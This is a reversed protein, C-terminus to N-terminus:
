IEKTDGLSKIRKDAKVAKERKPAGNRGSGGKGGTKKVRKAGRFVAAVVVVIIYLILIVGLIKLITLMVDSFLVDKAKGFAARVTDSDVSEKAVADVEAIVEGDCYYTIRGVKQGRTVPAKVTDRQTGNVKTKYVLDNDYVLSHTVKGVKSKVILREINEAPVVLVHDVSDGSELHLEGVAIETSGISVYEFASRVWKILKNMDVYANGFGFSYNRDADVMMGSACMINLIYTRGDKQTATILCYDGLKDKQGAILGIAESNRYGSVYYDSKLFNKSRVVSKENFRFSDVDSLAVLDNYKYFAAAILACERPTSRQNPANLGTPNVFNTRELGLAAAKENMRNVFTLINGGLKEGCFCALAACADNANAVLSASILDRAKYVDGPDLGMVPVRVDSINGSNDIATSTVTVETRAPDLGLEGFIDSVVMLAMLKAAVTPAVEEDARATYIFQEDDLCYAVVANGSIIGPDTEDAPEESSVQSAETSETSEASESSEESVSSEDEAVACVPALALLLALLAAAFRTYKFRKM